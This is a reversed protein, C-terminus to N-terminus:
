RDVRLEDAFLPDVGAQQGVDEGSDVVIPVGESGLVLGKSKDLALAVTQGPTTVPTTGATDTFLTTLDSPDYWVGPEALAFLASPSFGGRLAGFPSRFGDLPSIIQRM